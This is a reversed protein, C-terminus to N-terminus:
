LRRYGAVEFHDDYAFAVTLRARRMVEFSVADCLTFRQDRFRELWSSSAGRLLDADVLAWEYAPDDLMASVVHHAAEPGRRFLLLGQLEALVLPTSLFRGGALVFRRATEVARTHYQDKSHALALLASTDALARNAVVGPGGTSTSTM